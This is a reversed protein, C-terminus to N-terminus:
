QIRHLFVNMEFLKNKVNGEQRSLIGSPDCINSQNGRQCLRFTDYSHPDPYDQVNWRDVASNQAWLLPLMNVLALALLVRHMTM